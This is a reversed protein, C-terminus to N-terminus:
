EVRVFFTNSSVHTGDAFVAEVQWVIRSAPSLGAFSSEPVVYEPTTLGRATALVVLEESAVRLDYRTGEPGASWRLHFRSRPLVTEEPITSTIEQPGTAGRYVPTEPGGIPARLLHVLSIALLLTAATAALMAWRGTLWPGGLVKRVPENARKMGSDAVLVMALRWAEACSGCTVTHDVIEAVRAGALRGAVAEWILGSEPCHVSPSSPASVGAAFGRRLRELDGDELKM